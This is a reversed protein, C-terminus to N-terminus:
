AANRDALVQRYLRAHADRVLRREDARRRRRAEDAPVGGGGVRRVAVEVADRLSTPEFVGPGYRFVPSHHQEHFYGCDPVVAHVGADYAAEVWGSHTGFRYPLILVDVDALYTSLEADDFCPHVRVDVGAARYAALRHDDVEAARPSARAGDDLDLRLRYGDDGAALL